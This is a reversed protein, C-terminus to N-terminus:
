SRSPSRSRWRRPTTCRGPASTVTATATTTSPRRPPSRPWRRRASCARPAGPRARRTSCRAASCRTPSRNSGDYPARVDDDWPDFGDIAGGAAIGRRSRRPRRRWRPRRVDALEVDAVIAKAGCDAAIYATEEATLHWNVATLRLGRPLTAAWVERVRAPQRLAAGRRRRRAVGRARLGRVLRNAREDLEGFTRAGAAGRLPDVIAPAAPDREAWLSLAGGRRLASDLEADVATVGQRAGPARASLKGVARARVLGPPEPVVAGDLAHRRSTTARIALRARDAVKAADIAYRRDHGPRDAVFRKLDAYPAIGAAALAPNQAAPRLEELLACIRDVVELNTRENRGGINYTEGPGAAGRARAPDRACHDEVYLWDRVNGGDGYIPLPKGELANLIM